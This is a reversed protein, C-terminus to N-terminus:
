GFHGALCGGHLDQIVHECLSTCPICLQGGKMLFGDHLYFDEM